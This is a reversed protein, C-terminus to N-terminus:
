KLPVYTWASLESICLQSNYILALQYLNQGDRDKIALNVGGLELLFKVCDARDNIAAVM